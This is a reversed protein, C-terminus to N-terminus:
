SDVLRGLQDAPEEGVPNQGEVSRETPGPEVHGLRDLPDEGPPGQVPVVGLCDLLHHIPQGGRHDAPVGLRRGEDPAARALLAAPTCALAPVREAPGPRDGLTGDRTAM